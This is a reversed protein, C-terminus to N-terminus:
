IGLNERGVLSGSLLQNFVVPATELWGAANAPTVPGLFHRCYDLEFVLGLRDPEPRPQGALYVRFSEGIHPGRFTAALRFNEIGAALPHTLAPYVRFVQNLGQPGAPFDLSLACGLVATEVELPGFANCYAALVGNALRRFEAWDVGLGDHEFRLVSPTARIEWRGSALRVGDPGAGLFRADPVASGLESDFRRPQGPTRGRGVPGCIFYCRIRGGTM